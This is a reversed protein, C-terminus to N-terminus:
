DIKQWYWTTKKRCVWTKFYSLTLDGIELKKEKFIDKKKELMQIITDIKSDGAVIGFSIINFGYM